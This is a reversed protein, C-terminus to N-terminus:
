STGMERECLSVKDETEPEAVKDETDPEALSDPSEQEWSTEEESSESGDQVDNNDNGRDETSKDLYEKPPKTSIIIKNKLSKPSPFETLREGKPYYILNGLIEIAM